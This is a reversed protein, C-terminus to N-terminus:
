PGKNVPIAFRVPTLPVGLLNKATVMVVVTDIGTLAAPVLTRSTSGGSDTTDISTTPAGRVVGETFAFVSDLIPGSPITSTVQYRVIIGPAPSRTGNRDGTITVTLPSSATFSTLPAVTGTLSMLTPQAVVQLNAPETQLRDGIRGVIQVLRVSDFATV